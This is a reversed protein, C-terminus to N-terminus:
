GGECGRRWVMNELGGEWRAVDVSLVSGVPEIEPAVAAPVDPM